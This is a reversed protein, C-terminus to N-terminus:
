LEILELNDMWAKAAFRIATTDARDDFQVHMGWHEVTLVTARAEDGRSDSYLIRSGERLQATQLTTM